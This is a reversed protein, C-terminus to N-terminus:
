QGGGKLKNLLAEVGRAMTAPDDSGLAEQVWLKFSQPKVFEGAEAKRKIEDLIRDRDNPPLSLIRETLPWDGGCLGSYAILHEFVKSRSINKKAAMIDALEWLSDHMYISYRRGQAM